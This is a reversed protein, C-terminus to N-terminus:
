RSFLEEDPLVRKDLYFASENSDSPIAMPIRDMVYRRALRESIEMRARFRAAYPLNNNPITSFVMYPKELERRCQTDKSPTNPLKDLLIQRHQRHLQKYMLHTQKAKYQQDLHQQSMLVSQEDAPTSVKIIRATHSNIQRHTNIETPVGAPVIKLNFGLDRKPNGTNQTRNQLKRLMDQNIMELSRIAQVNSKFIEPHIYVNNKKRHCTQSTEDNVCMVVVNEEDDTTQRKILEQRRKKNEKSYLEIVKSLPIDFAPGYNSGPLYGQVRTTLEGSEDSSTPVNKQTNGDDTPTNAADNNSPVQAPTSM